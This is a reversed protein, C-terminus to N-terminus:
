QLLEQNINKGEESILIVHLRKIVDLKESHFATFEQKLTLEEFKEVVDKAWIGYKPDQFGSFFFLHTNFLTRRTFNM